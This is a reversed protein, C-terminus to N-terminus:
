MPRTKCCFHTKSWSTILRPIMTHTVRIRLVKSYTCKIRKAELTHKSRIGKWKVVGPPIVPHGLLNTGMPNSNGSPPNMFPWRGSGGYKGSKMKRGSMWGM